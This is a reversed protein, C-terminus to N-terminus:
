SLVAYMVCIIWMRSMMAANSKYFISMASRALSDQLQLFRAERAQQMKRIRLLGSKRGQHRRWVSQIHAAAADLVIGLVLSLVGTPPSASLRPLNCVATGM